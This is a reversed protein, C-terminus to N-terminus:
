LSDSDSMQRYHLRGDNFLHVKLCDSDAAFQLSSLIQTVNQVSYTFSPEENISFLQCENLTQPSFNIARGRIQLYKLHAWAQGFHFTQILNASM